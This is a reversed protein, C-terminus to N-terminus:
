RPTVSSGGSVERRIFRPSGRYRLSSAGSLEASITDTAWVSASSAGSLNATLERAQLRDAELHCAGLEKVVLRGASGSLTAHSAGSLNLDAESVRVSGVIGGAGSASVDLNQGSLDGFLHVQGAGSVEIDSLTPATVDAKLTANQVATGPKLGLHLTGSSVGADLHNLLNGDVRVTVHVPHGLTVSVDFADTIQIRSFSAVPVPKTVLNGSGTITTTGCAAGLSLLLSGPYARSTWSAIPGNKVVTEAPVM